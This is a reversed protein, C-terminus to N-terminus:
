ARRAVRAPLSIRVLHRSCGSGSGACALGAKTRERSNSPFVVIYTQTQRATVSFCMSDATLAPALRRRSRRVCNPTVSSHPRQAFHALCHRSSATPCAQAEAMWGVQPGTEKENIWSAAHPCRKGALDGSGRWFGRPVYRFELLSVSAEAEKRTGKLGPLRLMRHLFVGMSPM